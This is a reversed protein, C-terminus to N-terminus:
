ERLYFASRGHHTFILHPRILHLLSTLFEAASDGANLDQQQQQQQRHHHDSCPVQQTGNTQLM